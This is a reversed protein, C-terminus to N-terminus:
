RARLRAPVLRRAVARLFAALSQRLGPNRVAANLAETQTALADVKQAVAALGIKLQGIPSTLPPQAAQEALRRWPAHQDFHPVWGTIFAAVAAAEAAMDPKAVSAIM